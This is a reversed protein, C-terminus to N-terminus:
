KLIIGGNVALDNVITRRKPNKLWFIYVNRKLRM